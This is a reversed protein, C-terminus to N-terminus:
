YILLYQRNMKQHWEIEVGQILQEERVDVLGM